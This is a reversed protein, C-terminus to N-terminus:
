DHDWLWRKRRKVFFSYALFHTQGFVAPVVAVRGFNRQGIRQVALPAVPRFERRTALFDQHKQGATPVLLQVIAQDLLKPRKAVVPDLHAIGILMLIAAAVTEPGIAVLVPFNILDSVPM